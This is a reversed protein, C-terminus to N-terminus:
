HLPMGLELNIRHLHLAFTAHTLTQKQKSATKLNNSRSSSPQDLHTVRKQITATLQTHAAGQKIIKDTKNPAVEFVETQKICSILYM